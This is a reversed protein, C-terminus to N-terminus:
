KAVQLTGQGPSDKGEGQPGSVTTFGEGEWPNEKDGGCSRTAADTGGDM